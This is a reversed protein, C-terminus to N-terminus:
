SVKKFEITIFEVSSGFLFSPFGVSIAMKFYRRFHSMSTKDWLFYPSFFNSAENEDSLFRILVIILNSSPLCKAKMFPAESYMTSTQELNKSKVPYFTTFM